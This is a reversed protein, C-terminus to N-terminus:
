TYDYSLDGAKEHRHCNEELRVKLFLRDYSSVFSFPLASTGYSPLILLLFAHRVM